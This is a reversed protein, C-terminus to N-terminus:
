EPTASRSKKGSPKRYVVFLFNYDRSCLFGEPICEPIADTFLLNKSSIHIELGDQFFLHVAAAAAHVTCVQFHDVDSAPCQLPERLHQASQSKM